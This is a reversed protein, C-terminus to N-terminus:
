PIWIKLFSLSGVAVENVPSKRVTTSEIAQIIAYDYFCLFRKGKRKKELFGKKIKTVIIAIYLNPSRFKM